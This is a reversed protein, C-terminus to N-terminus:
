RLFFVWPFATRWGGNAWRPFTGDRSEPHPYTMFRTERDFADGRSAMEECGTLRYRRAAYDYYEYYCSRGYWRDRLEAAAAEPMRPYMVIPEHITRVRLPSGFTWGLILRGAPTDELFVLAPIQAEAEAARVPEAIADTLRRLRASHEVYFSGTGLVTFAVSTGVTVERWRGQALRELAAATSLAVFPLMAFHYAAGTESTGVSYYGVQFVATAVAIASWARLERARPRGLALWAIPGALSLPWGLGWGNMRVLVVGLHLLGKPLSHYIGYERGLPWGFGYRELTYADWPLVFASGTVAANYVLVTLIWPAGALVTTLLLNRDRWGHTLLLAVGCPVALQPRCILAFALGNGALLGGVVGGRQVAWVALAVGALAPTQSTPTAATFVFAPSMALLATALTAIRGAGADRLARHVLFLTAFALLFHGLLPVGIRWGASLVLGTGFLYKGTTGSRTFLTFSEAWRHQPEVPPEFVRGHELLSAQMLYTADDDQTPFSQFVWVAIAAIVLVCLLAPLTWRVSGARRLWGGLPPAAFGLLLCAPALLVLRAAHSSLQEPTFGNMAGFPLPDLMAGLSPFTYYAFEHAGRPISELAAFAACAVAIGATALAARRRGPPAIAPSPPGSSEPSAEARAPHASM